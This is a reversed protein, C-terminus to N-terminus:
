ITAFPNWSYLLSLASLLFFPASFCLFRRATRDPVAGTLITFLIALVLFLGFAAEILFRDITVFGLPLHNGGLFPVFLFTVFVSIDAPYSGFQKPRYDAM